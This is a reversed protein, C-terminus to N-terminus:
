GTAAAILQAILQSVSRSPKSRPILLPVVAQDNTAVQDETGSIPAM